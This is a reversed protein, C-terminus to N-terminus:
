YIFLPQHRANKVKEKEDVLKITRLRRMLLRKERVKKPQDLNIYYDEIMQQLNSIKMINTIRNSVAFEVMRLFDGRKCYLLAIEKLSKLRFLM